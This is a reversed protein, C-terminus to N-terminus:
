QQACNDFNSAATPNDSVIQFDRPSDGNETSDQFKLIINSPATCPWNGCNEPSQLINASGWSPNPDQLWAYAEKDVNNFKVGKLIHM